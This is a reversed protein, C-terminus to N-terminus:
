RSGAPAECWGGTAPVRAIETVGEGERGKDGGLDQGRGAFHPTLRGAGRAFLLLHSRRPTM